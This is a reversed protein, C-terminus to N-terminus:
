RPPAPAQWTWWVSRGGIKGAHDPEGPEKTAELNSGTVEVLSGSLLTREAFDDNIVKVVISVQASTVRAGLNDQVVATIKFDGVGPLTWPLEYPAVFDSGLFAGNAFFDVQVVNGDPDSADAM